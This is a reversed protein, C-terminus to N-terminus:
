ERTTVRSDSTASPNARGREGWWVGLFVFAFVPWLSFVLIARTGFHFVEVAVGCTRAYERFKPWIVILYVLTCVAGGALWIAALTQM